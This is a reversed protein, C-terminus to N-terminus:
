KDFTESEEDEKYDTVSLPLGPILLHEVREDIAHRIASEFPEDIKLRNMEALAHGRFDHVTKGTFTKDIEDVFGSIVKAITEQLANTQEAAIALEKQIDM